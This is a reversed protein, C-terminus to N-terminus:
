GVGLQAHGGALDAVDVQAAPGRDALDTVGLLGVDAPALGAAHAPLALARRHPAHGHVRHVVRVSTALALRGTAAVRHTGPALLLAPGAVGALRAVRHDNAATAGALLASYSGSLVMGRLRFFPGKMSSWRCFFTSAWFSPPPLFTMLVQDRRDTMEGSM